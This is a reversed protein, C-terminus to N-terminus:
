KLLQVGLDPYDTIVGDVGLDKLAQMEELTNITWPIVQMGLGHATALVDADVLPYYPSYIDPVFGLDDVQAQVDNDPGGILLALRVNPDLARAERLTRPDFSQITARELIGEDKIVSYLRETFEAPEPHYLTDGDPTSKTEINYFIPPLNYEQVYAEATRIVDRLLPKEAAMAQQQPFRPNGRLGCDYARTQDYTLEYINHAHEDAEPIPEGNLSCISPSFWPEHSVLVQGDKTIVADMELTTVGLKLAEIFAVITNEPVLGRAGRHGQVDFGDPQDFRHSAAM